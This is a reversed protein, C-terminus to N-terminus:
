QRGANSPNQQAEKPRLRLSACAAAQLDEGPHMGRSPHDRGGSYVTKGKLNDGKSILLPTCPPCAKVPSETVQFKLLSPPNRLFFILPPPPLFPIFFFSFVLDGQEFASEEGWEIAKEATQAAKPNAPLCHLWFGCFSSILAGPFPGINTHGIRRASKKKRVFRCLDICNIPLRFSACGPAPAGKANALSRNPLASHSPRRKRHHVLM